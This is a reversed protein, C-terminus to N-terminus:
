KAAVVVPPEGEVYGPCSPDPLVIFLDGDNREDNHSAVFIRHGHGDCKDEVNPYENNFATTNPASKDVCADVEGGACTQVDVADERSEDNGVGCGAGALALAVILGMLAIFRKM